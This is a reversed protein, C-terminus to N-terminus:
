NVRIFRKGEVEKILGKLQLNLLNRYICAASFKTNKVISDIHLPESNLIVLLQKAIENESQQQSDLVALDERCSKIENVKPLNLEDIIDEATEVLKAGEKILKNTGQANLSNAAGPVAFVERGQSLALDATILSGSKKAAEVVIVAYSLGSIIRNRRPFNGKLPETDLPFETVVACSEVIKKFLEKNERPYVRKFGSGLVAITGGQASLAGKHAASDIGRALGSVICVNRRSLDRAIREAQKLGYFSARRCGVVAILNKKFIDIDGKVYLVVPPDYIEKLFVPYEPDFLTLINIKLKKIESLEQKFRSSCLITKIRTFLTRDNIQSMHLFDSEKTTFINEVTKFIKLLKLISRSGLGSVMNLAILYERKEM